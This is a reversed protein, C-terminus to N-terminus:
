TQEAGDEVKQCTVLSNPVSQSPLDNLCETVSALFLRNDAEGRQLVQLIQAEDYVFTIIEMDKGSVDEILFPSSQFAALQTKANRRRGGTGDLARTATFSVVM